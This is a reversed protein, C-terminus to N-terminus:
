ATLNEKEYIDLIRERREEFYPLRLDYDTSVTEIITLWSQKKSATRRLLGVTVGCWDFEVSSGIRFVGAGWVMVKSENVLLTTKTEAM